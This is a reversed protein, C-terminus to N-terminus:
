YRVARNSIMNAVFYRLTVYEEAVLFDGAAWLYQYLVYRRLFRYQVPRVHKGVIDQVQRKGLPEQKVREMRERDAEEAAAILKIFYDRYINYGSAVVRDTPDAILSVDQYVISFPLISQVSHWSELLQEGLLRYMRVIGTRYDARKEMTSVTLDAPVLQDASSKRGEAIVLSLFKFGLTVLDFDSSKIHAENSENEDACVRVSTLM